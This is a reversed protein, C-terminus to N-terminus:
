PSGLDALRMKIKPEALAGNIDRNLGNHHGYHPNQERKATNDRQKSASPGYLRTSTMSSVSISATSNLDNKSTSAPIRASPASSAPSIPLACTQVGTVHGDRIGDEAQFFFYF